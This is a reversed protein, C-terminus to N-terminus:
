TNRLSMITSLKKRWLFIRPTVFTTHLLKWVSSKCINPAVTCLEPAKTVM